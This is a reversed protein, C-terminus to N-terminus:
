NGDKGGLFTKALELRLLKSLGFFMLGAPLGIYVVAKYDMMVLMLARFGSTAQVLNTDTFGISSSSVVAMLFTTVCGAVVCFVLEKINRNKM